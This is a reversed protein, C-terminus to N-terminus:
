RLKSGTALHAVAEDLLARLLVPNVPKLVISCGNLPLRRQLIGVDKRSILFINRRAEDFDQEQPLQTDTNLDLIFLDASRAQEYAPIMGFDWERDRFGLLVERCLQCLLRDSSVLRISMFPM